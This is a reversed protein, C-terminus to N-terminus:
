TVELEAKTAQFLICEPILGRAIANRQTTLTVESVDPHLELMATAVRIASDQNAAIEPLLKIQVTETSRYTLYLYVHLM